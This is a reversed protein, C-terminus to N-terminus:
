HTLSIVCYNKVSINWIERVTDKLYEDPSCVILLVNDATRPPTNPTLIPWTVHYTYFNLSELQFQSIM